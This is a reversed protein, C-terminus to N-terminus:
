KMVLTVGNTGVASDDLFRSLTNIYDQDFVPVRDLADRDITNANRNEAVDTTVRMSLDQGGVTVTQSQSSISLNIRLPSIAKEGVAVALDKQQFGSAETHISYNGPAVKVLRFTGAADTASTQVTTGDAITLRVQAGSIAAGSPDLVIGIVVATSGADTQALEASPNASDSHQDEINLKTVQSM